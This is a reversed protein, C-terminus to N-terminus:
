RARGAIDQGTVRHELDLRDVPHVAVHVLGPQLMRARDGPEDPMMKTERDRGARDQGRDAVREDGRDLGECALPPDRDDVEDLALALVVHHVLVQGAEVAVLPHQEDAPRLLFGPHEAGLFAAVRGSLRIRPDHPGRRHDVLPVEVADIAVEAREEELEARVEGVGRLQTDVAVLVGFALRDLGPDPEGRQVVAERGAVVRGRHLGDAVPQRRLVISM